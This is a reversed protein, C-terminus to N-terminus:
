VVSKRDICLAMKYTVTYETYAPVSIQISFRFYGSTLSSTRPELVATGATMTNGDTYISTSYGSSIAGPVFVPTSTAAKASKIESKPLMFSIGLAFTIVSLMVLIATLLNRSRIKM